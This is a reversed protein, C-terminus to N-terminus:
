ANEGAPPEAPADPVPDIASLTAVSEQLSVVAADLAAQDEPSLDPLAAIQDKLAQVDASIREQAGAIAGKIQDAVATLDELTAMRKGLRVVIIMLRTIDESLREIGLVRRLRRM